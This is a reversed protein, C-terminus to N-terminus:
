TDDWWRQVQVEMVLINIIVYYICLIAYFSTSIFEDFTEFRDQHEINEAMEALSMKTQVFMWTLQQEFTVEYITKGINSCSGVVLQKCKNITSIFLFGQM